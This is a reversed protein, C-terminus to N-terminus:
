SLMNRIALLICEYLVGIIRVIKLSSKSVLLILSTLKLLEPQRVTLHAQHLLQVTLCM